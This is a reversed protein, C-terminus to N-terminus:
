YLKFYLKPWLRDFLSLRLKILRRWRYCLTTLVSVIWIFWWTIIIISIEIVVFKELWFKVINQIIIILLTFGQFSHLFNISIFALFKELLLIEDSLINVFSLNPSFNTITIHIQLLNIILHILHISRSLSEYTLLLLSFPFNLIYISPNYISLIFFLKM